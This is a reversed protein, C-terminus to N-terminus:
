CDDCRYRHQAQHFAANSLARRETGVCKRAPHVREGKTTPCVGVLVVSSSLSFLGMTKKVRLKQHLLPTTNTHVLFSRALIKEKLSIRCEFLLEDMMMIM